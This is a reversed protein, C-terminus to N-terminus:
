AQEVESAPRFRQDVISIRRPYKPNPVHVSHSDLGQRSLSREVVLHTNSTQIGEKARSTSTQLIRYSYLIKRVHTMSGVESLRIFLDYDVANTLETDHKGIAEWADRRFLRPPHVIMSRLLRERSFHPEEWGDDIPSGDPHIRCFNGYACVHGPRIAEVLLEVTEPEITDDGDLQLILEGRGASIAQNSAGGIGRNPATGIHVKPNKRYKKRLVALTDDSSGDNHVCIEINAYTQALASDVSAEVYESVNYAPIYITVLPQEPLSPWSKTQPLELTPPIERNTWSNLCSLPSQQMTVPAGAPRNWSANRGLVQLMERQLIKDEKTQQWIRMDGPAEFEVMWNRRRPVMHMPIGHEAAWVAVHLDVMRLTDMTSPDPLGVDSHFAMTGTGVIDVQIRSGHEVGFVHSRRTSTYQSWRSFSPGYPLTAGHVGVVAKRGHQEVEKVMCEVYDSPYDIDDDATLVYGKTGAMHVFKGNDAHNEESLHVVLRPDKPLRPPRRTGNVHLVLKGISLSQQLLSRVANGVNDFGGPYTAMFVTIPDLIDPHPNKNSPEVYALGYAKRLRKEHTSPDPHFVSASPSSFALVAPNMASNLQLAAHFRRYGAVYRSRDAGPGTWGIAQTGGGTLSDGHHLAVLDLLNHRLIREPGLKIRIREFLESDASVRARGDFEFKHRRITSARLMMTVLSFRSLRGGNFLAEGNNSMRVYRGLVVDLSRTEMLGIARELRQPHNWDDSDAFTVFAGKMMRLGENRCAYTGVNEPMRVRTIRPDTLLNDYLTVDDRPSHDDVVILELNAHTQNLISEVALPFADNWRHVTMIVSVLPGGKNFVLNMGSNQELSHFEFGSESWEAPMPAMGAGKLPENWAKFAGREDGWSRRLDYLLTARESRDKLGLAVAEAEEHRLLGALAKAEYIRITPDDRFKPPTAKVQALTGELDYDVFYPLGVRLRQAQLNMRLRNRSLLDRVYEVQNARLGAVAVSGYDITSSRGRMSFVVDAAGLILTEDGTAIAAELAVTGCVADQPEIRVSEMAYALALPAEAVVLMAKAVARRLPQHTHLDLHGALCELLEVTRDNKRQAVLNGLADILADTTGPLGKELLANLMAKDETRLAFEVMWTQVSTGSDMMAMISSRGVFQAPDGRRGVAQIARHVTVGDCRQLLDRVIDNLAEPLAEDVCVSALTEIIGHQGVAAEVMDALGETEGLSIKRLVLHGFHTGPLTQCAARSVPTQHNRRVAGDGLTWRHVLWQLDLGSSYMSEIAQATAQMGILNFKKEMMPRFRKDLCLEPDHTLARAVLYWREAYVSTRLLQWGIDRFGAAEDFLVAYAESAEEWTGPTALLRVNAERVAISGPKKQLLRSLRRQQMNRLGLVHIGRTFLDLKAQHEGMSHISKADRHLLWAGLDPDNILPSADQRSGLQKALTEGNDSVVLVQRTRKLLEPRHLITLGDLAGERHHVVMLGIHFPLLSADFGHFWTLGEAETVERQLLNETPHDRHAPPNMEDVLVYEFHNALPRSLGSHGFEVVRTGAPVLSMIRDHVRAVAEPTLQLDDVCGVKSCAQELHSPPHYHDLAKPGLERPHGNKKGIVALPPRPRRPPLPQREGAFLSRRM